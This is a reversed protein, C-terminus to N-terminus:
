DHTTALKRFLTPCFSFSLGRTSISTPSALRVHPARRALYESARHGLTLSQLQTLLGLLDNSKRQLTGKAMCVGEIDYNTLWTNSLSSYVDASKTRESTLM